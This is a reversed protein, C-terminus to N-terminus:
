MAQKLHCKAPCIKAHDKRTHHKADPTNACCKKARSNQMTHQLANKAHCKKVYCTKQLTNQVTPKKCPMKQIVKKAHHKAHRKQCLTKAHCRKCPSKCPKKKGRAANKAHCKKCPPNKTYCKKCTIKAHHKAHHNKPLKKQVATKAHKKARCKACCADGLGGECGRRGGPAAAPPPPCLRRRAGLSGRSSGPEPACFLWGCCLGASPPKGPSRPRSGAGGAAGRRRHTGSPFSLCPPSVCTAGIKHPKQPSLPILPRGCCRRSPLAFPRPAQGEERFILADEGLAHPGEGANGPSRM